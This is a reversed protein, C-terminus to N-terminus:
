GTDDVPTNDTPRPPHRVRESNVDRRAEQRPQEAPPPQPDRIWGRGRKESRATLREPKDDKSPVLFSHRGRGTPPQATASMAVRGEPTEPTDEHEDQKRDPRRHWKLIFLRELDELHQTWTIQQIALAGQTLAKVPNRRAARRGRNLEDGDIVNVGREVVELAIDVQAEWVDLAIRPRKGEEEMQTERLERRRKSSTTVGSCFTELYKRAM